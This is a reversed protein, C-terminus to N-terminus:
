KINEKLFNITKEWAIKSLAPDYTGLLNEDNMFAHGAGPYIQLDMRIGSQDMIQQQIDKAKEVSAYSDQDGFHGLIPSKIGHLPPPTPSTFLGYFAVTAGVQSGAENSLLIAFGGGMCFGVVGITKSTVSDQSLLFDIAGKLRKVGVEVPLNQMMENAESSDHTTPGGYLDPALSVFGESAFRDTMNAIHDTLGWWEQIVILGPGKKEPPLCLYGYATDQASPFSVNQHKTEQSM